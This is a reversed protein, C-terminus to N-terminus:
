TVKRERQCAKAAGTEAIGNDYCGPPLSLESFQFYDQNDERQKSGEPVSVHDKLQRRRGSHGGRTVM